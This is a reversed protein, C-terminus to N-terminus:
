LLHAFDQPGLPGLPQKRLILRQTIRICTVLPWVQLFVQGLDATSVRETLLAEQSRSVQRQRPLECSFPLWSAETHGHGLQDM